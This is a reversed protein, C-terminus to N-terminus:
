RGPAATAQPTPLSFVFTAGGTPTVGLDLRGGHADAIRRCISRGVGGAARTTFFPEFLRARTEDSVGPGTDHVTVVTATGSRAAHVDLHRIVGGFDKMSQIGNMM